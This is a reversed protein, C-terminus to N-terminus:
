LYLILGVTIIQVNSIQGCGFLLFAIFLTLTSIAVNGLLSLATLKSLTDAKSKTKVVCAENKEGTFTFLNRVLITSDLQSLYHHM